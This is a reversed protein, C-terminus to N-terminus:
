IMRAKCCAEQRTMVGASEEQVDDCPVEEVKLCRRSFGAHIM